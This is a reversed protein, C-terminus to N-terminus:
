KNSTWSYSNRLKKPLMANCANGNLKEHKNENFPGLCKLIDFRIHKKNKSGNHWKLNQAFERSVM